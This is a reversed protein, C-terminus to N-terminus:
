FLRVVINASTSNTALEDIDVEFYLMSVGLIDWEIRAAGNEFDEGSGQSRLTVGAEDQSIGIVDAYFESAAGTVLTGLTIDVKWFPVHHYTTTAFDQAVVGWCWCAFQENAADTGVFECSANNYATSNNLLTGVYGSTGNDATPKTTTDTPLTLSSSTSNTSFVRVGQQVRTTAMTM